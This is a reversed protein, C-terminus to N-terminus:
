GKARVMGVLPGVLSCVRLVLAVADILDLESSASEPLGLGIPSEASLFSYVFLTGGYKKRVRKLRM